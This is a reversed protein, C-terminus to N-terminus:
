LKSIAYRAEDKTFGEYLLQRHIANKSLGMLQYQEAKGLAHANWDASVNNMAYLAEEHTFGESPSFLQRYIGKKSFYGHLLYVNAKELANNKWAVDINEIASTSIEKSFGVYLLQRLLGKKSLHAQDSYNQAQQLANEYESSSNNNRSQEASQKINGRHTNQPPQSSSHKNSSQKIESIVVDSDVSGTVYATIHIDGASTVSRDFKKSIVKILNRSITIIEDHTVKSNKVQTNSSVLVGVQESISRLAESFAADEAQQITEKKSVTYEGKANFTEVSAESINSLSFLLSMSLLIGCLSLKVKKM